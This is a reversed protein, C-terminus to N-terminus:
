AATSITKGADANKKRTLNTENWIALLTPLGFFVALDLPVLFEFQFSIGSGYDYNKEDWEDMDLIHIRAPWGYIGQKNSYFRMNLGVLLSCSIFVALLTSLAMKFKRRWWWRVFMFILFLFGVGFPLNFLHIFIM